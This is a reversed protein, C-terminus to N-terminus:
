KQKQIIINLDDLIIIKAVLRIRHYRLKTQTMLYLNVSLFLDFFTTKLNYQTKNNVKSYIYRYTEVKNYSTKLNQMLSRGM